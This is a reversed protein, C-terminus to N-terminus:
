TGSGGCEDSRYGDTITRAIQLCNREEFHWALRAQSLEGALKGDIVLGDIVLGDIALGVIALGVIALGVIALGAAAEQHSAITPLAPRLYESINPINTNLTDVV